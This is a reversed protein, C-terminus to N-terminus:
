RYIVKYGAYLAVAVIVIFLLAILILNNMILNIFPIAAITTGITGGSGALATWGMSLAAAFIILVPLLLISIVILAPTSGVQSALYAAVIMGGFLFVIMGMIIMIFGNEFAAFIGSVVPFSVGLSDGAVVFIFIGIAAMVVVLFFIGLIGFVDTISGKSNM